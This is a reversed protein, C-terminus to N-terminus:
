AWRSGTLGGLYGLYGTPATQGAQVQGAQWQNYLNGLTSAVARGAYGGTPQNGGYYKSLAMAKVAEPDQMAYAMGPTVGAQTQWDASGPTMGSYQKALNWGAGIDGGTFTGTGGMGGAPAGASPSFQGGYWDAFGTGTGLGTTTPDAGGAGYGQMLYRGFTPAFQRTAMSQYGPLSYNPMGTRMMAQYQASPTLEGFVNGWDAWPARTTAGTYSGLESVGLGEISGVGAAGAGGPTMAAGGTQNPQWNEWAAGEGPVPEIAPAVTAPPAVVAPAVTAPPVTTAGTVPKDFYSGLESMGSAGTVPAAAPPAVVAPPVVTAPPAVTAVAAAAAAENKWATAQAIADELTTFSHDMLGTKPNLASFGDGYPVITLGLEKAQQFLRDQVAQQTDAQSLGGPPAAINQVMQNINSMGGIDYSGYSNM